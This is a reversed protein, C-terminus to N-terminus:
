ETPCTIASPCHMHLLSLTCGRGTAAGQAAGALLGLEDDTLPTLTERKLTLTRKM